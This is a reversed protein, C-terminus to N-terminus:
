LWLESSTTCFYAATLLLVKPHCLGALVTQAPRGPPANSRRAIKRERRGIERGRRLWAADHPHDPLMALVLIGLVIAPAAWFIYLWQWGHMGLLAPHGPTGIKLLLNSIKPSIIQAVPTAVFFLALARGRDRIPFWHTLFVIVGPFFGAEALGLGFRVCYFQGPTKVLATLAAIVGWSLM